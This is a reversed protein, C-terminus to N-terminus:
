YIQLSKLHKRLPVSKTYLNGYFRFLLNREHYATNNTKKKFFFDGSAKFFVSWEKNIFLNKYQNTWIILRDQSSILSYNSM